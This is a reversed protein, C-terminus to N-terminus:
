TFQRAKPNFHAPSLITDNRSPERHEPYDTTFHLGRSEKRALASRITLQAVLALNRLELLDRSIVTRNYFDIIEGYIVDVRRLARELRLNSRVIGVYDWMISRIEKFDHSILVWEEPNKTNTHDWETLRSATARFPDLSAKGALVHDLARQAFVLGELLSNSALRNGGHVGSSAVEGIAYLNALDTLGDYNVLVGGCMYHVAPVVPIPERTIDINFQEKLTGFILPFHEKIFAADRHSIDLWVYDLGDRKLEADIARAVIDRPALERQEHYDQMFARGTRPNKLIAGEGRMAETILFAPTGPPAKGKLALATPHFQFFEMNRVRCGARYALAVGDGTSVPPNTTVPYVRGAGGTALITYDAHFLDIENTAADLVYAGFVTTSNSRQPLHHETALEVVCHNTLLRINPEASVRELLFSELSRGTHDHTHLVRSEGHGGERGFHLKGDEGRTFPMGLDILEQVRRVGERVLIGVAEEDCLGAGAALTDALHKEPNDWTGLAAAIGGQAYTTAANDVKDKTVITVTGHKAAKLAFFLGAIGSGIVLFQPAPANASM